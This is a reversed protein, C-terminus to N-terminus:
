RKGYETFVYDHKQVLTHCGHCTNGFDASTHKPKWTDAATDYTFTAFGWGHTNPFRKSDKMMFSVEALKGPVSAPYPATIRAKAWEIKAFKAGDPVPKGNAPIGESYAKVLVPNGVISKICGPEPSTGCGSGNDPHSSSIMQWSEYGKFESFSIGNPEKLAWRDQAALAIGAVLMSSSVMALTAIQQRKM